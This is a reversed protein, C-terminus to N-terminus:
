AIMDMASEGSSALKMSSSASDEPLIQAALGYPAPRSPTLSPNFLPRRPYYDDICAKPTKGKTSGPTSSSANRPASVSRVRTAGFPNDHGEMRRDRIINLLGTIANHNNREIFFPCDRSTAMHSHTLGAAFCNICCPTDHVPVLLNKSALLDHQSTLHPAACLACYVTNSLCGGTSHGWHQCSGCQPVSVKNVWALTCCSKGNIFVPRNVLVKLNDGNRSDEIDLKVTATVRGNSEGSIIWVPGHVINARSLLGSSTIQTRLAEESIVQGNADLRPVALWKLSSVTPREIFRTNDMQAGLFSALVAHTALKLQQDPPFQYSIELRKRNGSWVAKTFANNALLPLTGPHARLADRLHETLEPGNIGLSPYPM